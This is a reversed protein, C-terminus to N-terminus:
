ERVQGSLNKYLSSAYIARKLSVVCRVNRKLAVRLTEGRRREGPLETKQRNRNLGKTIWSACLIAKWM